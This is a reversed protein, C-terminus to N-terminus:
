GEAHVPIREELLESFLARYHVLAQRLDETTAQRQEQRLCINHAARYHEVVLAHDVSVDAARQEFDAVPYGRATMVSGVLRDAETVAGAPDDVFRAQIRQWEAAFRERENEALPRIHLSEVRKERRGLERAAERPSATEVLHQYEPGYKAQLRHTRRRSLIAWVVVGALVVGFALIIATISNM